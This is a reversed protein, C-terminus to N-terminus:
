AREGSLWRQLRGRTWEVRQNVHAKGGRTPRCLTCKALMLLEIWSNENNAWVAQALAKTLCQAFLRRIVRPINKRTPVFREHIESLSPLSLLDDSPQSDNPLNSNLTTGNSRITSLQHKVRVKPRCSPCTGHYRKHLVKDCVNCQCYNHLRLFDAPVAGSIHGTCHDNLHSKINNFDKFYKNSSSLAEPCGVVPCFIRSGASVSNRRRIAPGVLQPHTSENGSATSDTIGGTTSALSADPIHSPIATTPAM